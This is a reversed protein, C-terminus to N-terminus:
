LESHFPYQMIHFPIATTTQPCCRLSNSADPERKTKYSFSLKYTFPLDTNEVFDTLAKDLPPNEIWVFGTM